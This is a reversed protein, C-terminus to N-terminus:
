QIAHSINILLLLNKALFALFINSIAKDFPSPSHQPREPHFIGKKCGGEQSISMFRVRETLQFRVTELQHVGKWQMAYISRWPGSGSNGLMTSSQPLTVFCIFSLLPAQGLFAIIQCDSCIWQSHIHLAQPLSQDHNIRIAPSQANIKTWSHEVDRWWLVWAFHYIFKHFTIHMTKRQLRVTSDHRTTTSKERIWKQHILNKHPCTLM